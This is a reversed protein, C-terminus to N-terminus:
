KQMKELAGLLLMNAATSQVVFAAVEESIKVAQVGQGHGSLKNRVTPVAELVSRLGSLSSQMYSPFLGNQECIALLKKATDNQNYAWGRKHCIAKMTSEFAKLCENICEAFRRHRIHDHARAFEQDAGSLYGEKLLAMVPAVAEKHLFSSDIRIFKRDRFEYGIAHEQFHRSLEDAARRIHSMGDFNVYTDARVHAVMCAFVIEIVDLCREVRDERLFYEWIDEEATCRRRTLQQVGFEHCLAQQVGAYFVNLDRRVVVAAFRFATENCVHIVQNKLAEPLADYTYADAGGTQRNRKSYTELM